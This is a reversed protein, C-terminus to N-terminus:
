SDRLLRELTKWSDELLRGFTEWSDGLFGWLVGLSGWLYDRESGFRLNHKNVKVADLIM